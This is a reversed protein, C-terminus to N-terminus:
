EIKNFYEILREAKAKDKLLISTEYNYRLGALTYNHSGLIITQRDIILLKNHVTAKGSDFRVNIGAQKLREYAQQNRPGAAELHQPQPYDLLVNVEVGRKHAQILEELLQNPYAQAFDYVLFLYMILHVSERANQIHSQAIHFYEDNLILTSRVSTAACGCLLTTAILFLALTLRVKM